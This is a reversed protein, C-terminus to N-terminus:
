LNAFFSTVVPFYFASCFVTSLNQQPIEMEKLASLWYTWGIAWQIQTNLPCLLWIWPKRTWGNQNGTWWVREGVWRCCSPQCELGRTVHETWRAWKLSKPWRLPFRLINERSAHPMFEKQHFWRGIEGDNGFNYLIVKYLLNLLASFMCLYYVFYKM